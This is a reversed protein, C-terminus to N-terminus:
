TTFEEEEEEERRRSMCMRLLKFRCKSTRDDVCMIANHEHNGIMFTSCQGVNLTRPCPHMREVRTCGRRYKCKLEAHKMAATSNRTCSRM